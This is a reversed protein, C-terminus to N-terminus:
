PETISSWKKKYSTKCNQQATAFCSFNYSVNGLSTNGLTFLTAFSSSSEVKHFPQQLLLTTLCTWKQSNYALSNRPFIALCTILPILYRLLVNFENNEDFQFPLVLLSRWFYQKGNSCCIRASNPLCCILYEVVM